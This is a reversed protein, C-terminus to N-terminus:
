LGFIMYELYANSSGAIAYLSTITTVLPVFAVEGALLKIINTAVSSDASVKIWTTAHHNMFFAWHPLSVAGLPIGAVSTGVAVATHIWDTAAMDFLLDEVSRGVAALMSAPRYVSLSLNVTIEEAM